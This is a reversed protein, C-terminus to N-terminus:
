RLNDDVLKWPFPCEWRPKRCVGGNRKEERSPSNLVDGISRRDLATHANRMRYKQASSRLFHGHYSSHGPVMCCTKKIPLWKIRAKVGQFEFAVVVNWFVVIICGKTLTVRRPRTTDGM